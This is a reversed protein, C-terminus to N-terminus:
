IGAPFTTLQSVVELVCLIMDVVMWRGDRMGGAAVWMHWVSRDKGEEWGVGGGNEVGALSGGARQLM